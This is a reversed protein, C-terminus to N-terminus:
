RAINSLTRGAGNKHSILDSMVANPNLLDKVRWLTVDGDWGGVGLVMGDKSFALSKAPQKIANRSVRPASVLPDWLTQEVGSITVNTGSKLDWLIIEDSGSALLKGNPSFAMSMLGRLHGFLERTRRWTTTDWLQVKGPGKLGSITGLLRDDASFAVGSCMEPHGNLEALLTGGPLGWVYVYGDGGLTPQTGVALMSGKQSFAVSGVPGLRGRVTTIIEGLKADLVFVKFLGINEVGYRLKELSATEDVVIALFRNNFSLSVMRPNPEEPLTFSREIKKDDMSWIEVRKERCFVYKHGDPSFSASTALASELMGIERGVDKDFAFFRPSEDRQRVALLTRNNLFGISQVPSKHLLQVRVLPEILTEEGYAGTQAILSIICFYRFM